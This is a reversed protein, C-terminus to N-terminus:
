LREGIRKLIRRMSKDGKKIRRDAVVLMTNLRRSYKNYRDAHAKKDTKVLLKFSERSLARNSLISDRIQLQIAKRKKM